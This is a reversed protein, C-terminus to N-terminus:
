SIPCSSTVVGLAAAKGLKKWGIAQTAGGRDVNQMPEVSYSRGDESSEGCRNDPDQRMALEARIDCVFACLWSPESPSSHFRTLDTPGTM